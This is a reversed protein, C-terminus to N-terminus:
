GRSRPRTRPIARGPAAPVTGQGPPGSRSASGVSRPSIAAVLCLVRRPHARGLETVAAALTAGTTAVDDVLVVIKGAARRAAGPRLEFAGAPNRRRADGDLSVQSRTARPRALLAGCEVWPLRARVGRLLAAVQDHGRRWRRRWHLPVGTALVGPPPGELAVALRAGLESGLRVGARVEGRYKLGHVLTRAPGQHLFLAHVPGPGLPVPAALGPLARACAVCLHPWWPSGAECPESCHLCRSAFVLDVAHELGRGVARLRLPAFPSALAPDADM